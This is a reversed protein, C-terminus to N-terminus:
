PYGSLGSGRDDRKGELKLMCDFCIRKPKRPAHWRFMVKIGCKCCVGTLNDDFPSPGVPMCVVFDCTEAKEDSVIPIKFKSM